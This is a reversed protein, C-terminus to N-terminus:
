STQRSARTMKTMSLKFKWTELSLGLRLIHLDRDAGDSLHPHGDGSGANDILLSRKQDDLDELFITNMKPTGNEIEKRRATNKEVEEPTHLQLLETIPGGRVWWSDARTRRRRGAIPTSPNKVEDQSEQITTPAATLLFTQCPDGANASLGPPAQPPAEVPRQTESKGVSDTIRKMEEQFKLTAASRINPVNRGLKTLSSEDAAPHCGVPSPASPVLTLDTLSSAGSSNSTANVSILKMAEEFRLTAESPSAATQSSSITSSILSTTASSKATARWSAPIGSKGSWPDKIRWPDDTQPPVIDLKAMQSALKDDEDDDALCAFYSNSRGASSEEDSQGEVEIDSAESDGDLGFAPVDGDDNYLGELLGADEEEAAGEGELNKLDKKNKLVKARYEHGKFVKSDPNCM